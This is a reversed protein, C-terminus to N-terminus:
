DGAGVQVRIEKPGFLPKPVSKFNKAPPSDVKVNPLERSRTEMKKPSMWYKQAPLSSSRNVKEPLGSDVMKTESLSSDGMGAGARQVPFGPKSPRGKRFQYRNIDQLSMNNVKSMWDDVRKDLQAYYADRFEVSQAAPQRNEILRDDLKKFNERTRRDNLPTEVPLVEADVRKVSWENTQQGRFRKGGFSSYKSPWERITFRKQSFSNMRQLSSSRSNLSSLKGDFAQVRKTFDNAKQQASLPLFLISFITGLCFSLRSKRFASMSLFLLALVM